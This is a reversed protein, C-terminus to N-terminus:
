EDTNEITKTDESLSYQSKLTAADLSINRQVQGREGLFDILEGDVQVEVGGSNGLSMTLDPRDPVFYQDGAKLVRSVLSKGNEDKIEVWSNEIMTLLIGKPAPPEAVLEEEVTVTTTEPPLAEVDELPGVEDQLIEPGTNIDTLEVQLEAPVPPIERVSSRDTEQASWWGVLALVVLVLSLGVVWLPPIKSESAGVPFDLQPKTARGGSQSKFLKVMKDGDLGLYESYSRVFGIAYVRGPLNEVDGTEIAEIQPAKIRIAREIDELSQGHHERTRRLIDGVGMDTYYLEEQQPASEKVAAQGM